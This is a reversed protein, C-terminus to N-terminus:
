LFATYSLRIGFLYMADTNTDNGNSSDRDFAIRILDGATVTLVG